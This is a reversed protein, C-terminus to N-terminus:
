EALDSYLKQIADIADQLTFTKRSTLIEEGFDIAKVAIGSNGETFANRSEFWEFLDTVAARADDPTVSSLRIRLLQSGFDM